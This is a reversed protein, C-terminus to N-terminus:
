DVAAKLKPKLKLTKLLHFWHSWRVQLQPKPLIESILTSVFCEVYEPDNVDRLGARFVTMSKVGDM